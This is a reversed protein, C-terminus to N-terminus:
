WEDNKLMRESDIIYERLRDYEEFFLFFYIMHYDAEAKKGHETLRAVVHDFRRRLEVYSQIDAMGTM